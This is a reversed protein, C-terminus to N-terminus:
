SGKLFPTLAKIIAVSEKSVAKEYEQIQKEYRPVVFDPRNVLDYMFHNWDAKHDTLHYKFDNENPDHRLLIRYMNTIDGRNLPKMNNEETNAEIKQGVTVKIEDLHFHSWEVGQADRIRVHKGIEKQESGHPDGADFVVAPAAITFGGNSPDVAKGGQVKQLHHHAAVGGTNGTYGVLVGNVRVPTRIPTPRDVGLHPHAKSWPAPSTIGFGYKIQYKSADM